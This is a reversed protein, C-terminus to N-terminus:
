RAFLHAVGDIGVAVADGEAPAHIGPMRAAIPQGTPLEITALAEHGYFHVATVKGVTGSSTAEGLVIQEPRLLIRGDGTYGPDDIPVAGLECQAHGATVVAALIVADGVFEATAVDVPARYLERPTAVQTFRGERMVAVQDAMSLAESQDHTVLITTTELRRLADAVARRTTERLGADLASFPEDLLVVDPEPALARALAVRQQQGGSLQHPYRRAYGPDLGVLELLEAVRERKGKTRWPLGFTINQAVRLHPFLAGEQAVYGIRRREPPAFTSADNLVHGEVVVSGADPREFGALVRLLTTKGCGSPGLVATTSSSPVVLDVGRLVPTSGFRKELGAIEIRSV